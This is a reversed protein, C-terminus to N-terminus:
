SEPSRRGILGGTVQPHGFRDQLPQNPLLAAICLKKFLDNGKRFGLVVELRCRLVLTSQIDNRWARQTLVGQSSHECVETLDILRLANPDFEARPIAFGSRYQTGDIAENGFILKIGCELNHLFGESLRRVLPFQESGSHDTQVSGVFLGGGAFHGGLNELQCYRGPSEAFCGFLLESFRGLGRVRSLQCGGIALVVYRATLSYSLLDIQELM